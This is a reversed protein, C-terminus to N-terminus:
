TLFSFDVWLPTEIVGTKCCKPAELGLKLLEIKVVLCPGTEIIGIQAHFETEIIGIQAHFEGLSINPFSLRAL